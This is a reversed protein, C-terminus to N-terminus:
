HRKSVETEEEESDDETYEDESDTEEYTDYIEVLDSWCCFFWVKYSFISRNRSM